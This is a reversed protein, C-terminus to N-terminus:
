FATTASSTPFCYKAKTLKSIESSFENINTGNSYIGSNIIKELRPSIEDFTLSPKVINIRSM